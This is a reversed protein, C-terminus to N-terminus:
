YALQLLVFKGVGRVISGGILGRGYTHSSEGMHTIQSMRKLHRCHRRPHSPTPCQHTWTFMVHIYICWTMHSARTCTFTYKILVMSDCWHTTKGCLLASISACICGYMYMYICMYIYIYICTYISTHKNTSIFIYICVYMYICIYIYMYIYMNM